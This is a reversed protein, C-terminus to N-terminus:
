NGRVVRYYRPGGPQVPMSDSRSRGSRPTGVNQWSTRDNSSQVQYRAGIQSLWRLQTGQGNRTVSAPVPRQGSNRANAASAQARNMLSGYRDAATAQQRTNQSRYGAMQGAQTGTSSPVQRTLGGQSGSSSGSLSTMRQPARSNIPTYPSRNMASGQLPQRLFATRTPSTLSSMSSRARNFVSSSSVSGSVATGYMRSRAQQLLSSQAATGANRMFPQRLNIRTAPERTRTQLQAMSRQATAAAQSVRQSPQTSTTVPAPSPPNVVRPASATKQQQVAVVAPAVSSVQPPTPNINLTAVPQSQGSPTTQARARAASPNSRRRETEGSVVQIEGATVDVVGAAATGNSALYRQAAIISHNARITNVWVALYKNGGNSGVAPAKQHLNGQSNIAFETGGSTLRGQIGAGGADQGYSTWVVLADSGVVAIGPDEQLGKLYTNHRTSQGSPLGNADFSKVFVDSLNNMNVDDRQVWIVSFGGGSGSAIQVESSVIDGDNLRYENGLARGMASYHRAMVNARLNPAGSSNRGNTSESIWGVVFKDGELAAVSPKSQNRSTTQNILFEAGDRIGQSTFRQGYVGEQDGDQGFSTWVVLSQGDSLTAVDADTQIGTARTNVRQAGGLFNGQADLFRAYIDVADRPGAEWTVVAGGGPLLSVRPNIENSGAMNQSVVLPSGIGSFDANLRQALIREGQSDDTANQWVLFGGTGGVAVHPNQQHGAIDGVLPYEGGLPTLAAQSISGGYLVACVVLILIKKMRDEKPKRGSKKLPTPSYGASL